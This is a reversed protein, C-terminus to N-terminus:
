LDPPANPRIAAPIDPKHRIGRYSIAGSRPVLGERRPRGPERAFKNTRGRPQLISRQCRRRRLGLTQVNARRTTRRSRSRGKNAEASHTPGRARPEGDVVLLERRSPSRRHRRSSTRLPARGPCPVIRTSVWSWADVQAPRQSRLSGPHAGRRTRRTSAPRPSPGYHRTKNVESRETTRRPSTCGAASTWEPALPARGRAPPAKPKCLSLANYSADHLSAM